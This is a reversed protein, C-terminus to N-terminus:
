TCDDGCSLLREGDSSITLGRVGGRHGHLIYATRRSFRWNYWMCYSSWCTENIILIFVFRMAIGTLLMGFGSKQLILWPLVYTGFIAISYCVFIRTTWRYFSNIFDRNHLLWMKNNMKYDHIFKKLHIEHQCNRNKRERVANKCVRWTRCSQLHEYIGYGM